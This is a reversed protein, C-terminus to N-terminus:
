LVVAAWRFDFREFAISGDDTTSTKIRTVRATREIDKRQGVRYVSQRKIERYSDIRAPRRRGHQGRPQKSNVAATDNNHARRQDYDATVHRHCQSYFVAAM